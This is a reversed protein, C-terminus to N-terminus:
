ARRLFSWSRVAPPEAAKDGKFMSDLESLRKFIANDTLPNSKKASVPKPAPKSGWATDFSLERSVALSVSPRGWAGSADRKSRVSALLPAKGVTLTASGDEVGYTAAVKAGGISRAASVTTANKGFNRVVGLSVPKKRGGLREPLPVAVDAFWSAIAAGTAPNVSAFVKHNPHVKTAADLTFVNGKEAWRAGLDLPRGDSLSRSATVAAASHRGGFDYAVSGTVGDGLPVSAQGWLGQLSRARGRVTTDNAILTYSIGNIQKRDLDLRRSDKERRISEKSPESTRSCFTSERTRKRHGERSSLLRSM